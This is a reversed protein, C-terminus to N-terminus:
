SWINWWWSHSAHEANNFATEGRDFGKLSFPMGIPKNNLAAFLIRAQKAQRLSSMLKDDIPIAAICGVTNCTEYPRLIPAGSDISLGLGPQLLVDYPMTVIMKMGDPARGIELHAIESHSKEDVVDQALACTGGPDNAKPCTLRWDDYISVTAVRDPNMSITPLRDSAGILGHGVWGVIGGGLFLIVPLLIRWPTKTTEDM